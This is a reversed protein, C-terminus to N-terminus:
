NAVLHKVEPDNKKRYSICGGSHYGRFTYNNLKEPGGAKAKFKIDQKDM